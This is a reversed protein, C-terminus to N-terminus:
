GAACGDLDQNHFIIYYERKAPFLVVCKGYIFM